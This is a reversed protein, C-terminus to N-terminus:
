IKTRVTNKRQVRFAVSFYLFRSVLTGTNVDCAVIGLRGDKTTIYGVPLLISM